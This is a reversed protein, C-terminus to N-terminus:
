KLKFSFGKIIANIPMLFYKYLRYKILLSASTRIATFVIYSYAIFNYKSFKKIFIIKNRIYYFQKQLIKENYKVFHDDKHNIVANKCLLLKGATHLRYTYETDDGLIFLNKMPFGIRKIFNSNILPGVFANADIETLSNLNKITDIVPKEKLNIKQFIKHHYFQYNNDKGLIIPCLAAINNDSNELLIELANLNPEADDDMLWLWDYGKEYGRKVGEYFGGAGGTNENIRVYHIKVPKEDTLNKIKFEKGWPESINEPPSETIYGNEKLLEPTGDNSFNDIIYIADVPRTQKLLAELCELLLNKRNYTVVVACVTNTTNKEINTEISM